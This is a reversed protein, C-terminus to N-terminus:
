FKLGLQLSVHMSNIYLSSASYSTQFSYPSFGYRYHLEVFFGGRGKHINNSQLGITASLYSNLKNYFLPNKFQLDVADKKVSNGNQSVNLNAPLLFRLHYGVMFYPSFLGNNERTFSYKVQLPLNIEQIVLSYNYPFTKDYLQLSDPKFYYSKFNLGHIFYEAGFLFFFKYERDCLVEKKFCFLANMKQTPNKAHNTNISYIGLAPGFSIRIGAGASKKPPSFYNKALPAKYSNLFHTNTFLSDKNAFLKNASLFIFFSLIYIVNKITFM